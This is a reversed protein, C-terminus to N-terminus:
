VRPIAPKVTIIPLAKAAKGTIVAAMPRGSITRLNPPSGATIPAIPMSDPKQPVRTVGM